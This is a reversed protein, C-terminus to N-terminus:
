CTIHQLQFLLLKNVKSFGELMFILVYVNLSSITIDNTTSQCNSTAGDWSIIIIFVIIKLGNLLIM